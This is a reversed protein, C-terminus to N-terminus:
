VCQPTFCLGKGGEVVKFKCKNQNVHKWKLNIIESLRLGTNLILKIMVYNRHGTKYRKNPVSLLKKQESEELVTPLKKRKRM